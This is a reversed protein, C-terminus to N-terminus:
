LEEMETLINKTTPFFKRSSVCDHRKKEGWREILIEFKEFVTWVIEMFNQVTMKCGFLGQTRLPM